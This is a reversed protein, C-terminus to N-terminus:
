TCRVLRFNEMTYWQIRRLLADRWTDLMQKIIFDKDLNTTIWINKALMQTMGGKIELNLPAHDSLRLLVTLDCTIPNTWENIVINEHGDYGDWWKNSEDKWYTDKLEKVYTTKGSGTKGCIIHITTMENRTLPTELIRKGNNAAVKKVYKEYRAMVSPFKDNLDNWCIKSPAKKIYDCLEELDTRQGSNSVPATGFTVPASYRSETKSCYKICDDDSGKAPELHASNDGLVEKVGKM